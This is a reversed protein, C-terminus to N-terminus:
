GVILASMGVLMAFKWAVSERRLARPSRTPWALVGLAIVMALATALLANAVPSLTWAAIVTLGNWAVAASTLGILARTVRPRVIALTRLGLAGDGEVDALDKVLERALTTGGAFVAGLWGASWNGGKAHAGYLVLLGALMAITANGVLPRGKLAFSYVMLWAIAWLAVGTAWWGAISGAIVSAGAGVGFLLGTWLLAVRPSVEGSPLPRMPANIRDVAIDCVDNIVNGAAFITLAALAHWTFSSWVCALVEGPADLPGRLGGAERYGVILTVLALLVNGPRTLRVLGRASRMGERASAM